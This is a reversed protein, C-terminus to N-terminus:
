VSQYALRRSRRRGIFYAILVIVVLAALAIGVAIPVIESVTDDAQCDQAEQYSSGTITRFPDFKVHSFEVVVTFNENDSTLSQVEKSACLYSRKLDSKFMTLNFANSTINGGPYLPFTDKEFTYNLTVTQVYQSTSANVAEFVLLDNKNGNIQIALTSLHDSCKSKGVDVISSNDLNVYIQTVNKTGNYTVVLRTAMEVM